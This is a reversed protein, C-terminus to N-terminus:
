NDSKIILEEDNVNLFCGYHEKMRSKTPMTIGRYSQEILYYSIGDVLM